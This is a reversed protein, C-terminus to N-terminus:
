VNPAPTARHSFPPPEREGRCSLPAFRGGQEGGNCRQYLATPSLPFPDHAQRAAQGLRDCLRFMKPNSLIGSASRQTGRTRTQTKVIKAEKASPDHRKM